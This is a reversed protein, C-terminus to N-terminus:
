EQNGPYLIAYLQEIGELIRMTPRSVLAEEILFVNDERIAKIAGFGPEQIITEKAVPNMRGHQALFFDIEGGRSLLREKGYYGINTSRVQNADAAINIGGAQELVFVGISEPAFTKM